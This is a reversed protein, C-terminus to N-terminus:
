GYHGFKQRAWKELYRNLLILTTVVAVGIVVNVIVNNMINGAFLRLNDLLIIMGYTLGTLPGGYKACFYAIDMSMRYGVEAKVTIHGHLGMPVGEGYPAHQFEREAGYHVDGTSSGIAGAIIGFVLGLLPIAIPYGLYQGLMVSDIVAFFLNHFLYSVATITSAVIFAHSAILPLQTLVVDYYLPQGFVNASAIRGVHATTSLTMHFLITIGAAVAIALAPHWKLGWWFVTFLTSSIVGTTGHTVPEGAIAKNFLRHFVGVQPALQVQSNPNSQSGMDSEIDEFWEGITILLVVLAFIGLLLLLILSPEFM